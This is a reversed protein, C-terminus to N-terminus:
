MRYIPRERESYTEATTVTPTPEKQSHAYRTYWSLPPISHGYITHNAIYAKNHFNVM